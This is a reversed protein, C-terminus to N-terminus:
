YASTAHLNQRRGDKNTVSLAYRAAEWRPLTYTDRFVQVGPCAQLRDALFDVFKVHGPFGTNRSGLSTLFLMDTWIQERGPLAGYDASPAAGEATGFSSAAVAGAAAGLMERRSIRM